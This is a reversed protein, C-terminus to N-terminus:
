GIYNLDTKNASHEEIEDAIYQIFSQQITPMNNIFKLHESYLEVFLIAIERKSMTKEIMETYLSLTLCGDKTTNILNENIVEIKKHLADANVNCARWYSTEEHNYSVKKKEKKNM